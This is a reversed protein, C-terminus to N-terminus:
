YQTTWELNDPHNNFPCNDKHNVVSNLLGYLGNFLACVISHQAYEITELQGDISVRLEVYIYGNKKSSVAGTNCPIVTDDDLKYMSGDTNVLFMTNSLDTFIYSWDDLQEAQSLINYVAENNIYQKGKRNM